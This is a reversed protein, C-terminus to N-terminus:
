EWLSEGFQLAVDWYGSESWVTVKQPLNNWRQSAEDVNNPIPDAEFSLAPRPLYSSEQSAHKEKSLQPLERHHPFDKNELPEM